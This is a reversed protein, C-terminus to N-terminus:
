LLKDISFQLKDFFFVDAKTILNNSYTSNFLTRINLLNKNIKQPIAGRYKM